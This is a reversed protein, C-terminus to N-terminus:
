CYSWDQHKKPRCEKPCPPVNNSCPRKCGVFGSTRTLRRSPFAHSQPFKTCQYSDHQIADTKVLPWVHEDLLDEDVKEHNSILEQFVIETVTNNKYNRFCFGHSTIRKSEQPSDRMCHFLKESELWQEVADFERNLLPSDVDRVCTVDVTSDGIPLLRWFNRKLHSINGLLLIKRVDCFRLNKHIKTLVHQTKNPLSGDHYVRLMWDHYTASNAAETALVSIRKTANKTRRANLSYSLIWSGPEDKMDNSCLNVPSPKRTTGEATKLSPPDNNKQLFVSESKIVLEISVQSQKYLWYPSLIIVSIAVATFFDRFYRVAEKM